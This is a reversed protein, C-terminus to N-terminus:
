FYFNRVGQLESRYSFRNEDFWADYREANKEFAEFKTM